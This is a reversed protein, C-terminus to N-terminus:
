KIAFTGNLQLDRSSAAASVKYTGPAVKWSHSAVEWYSLSRANLPIKVQVSQGPDLEVRRFGKLQRPPQPVKPLSPLGVYLQAVEAGARQGTNTVTFEVTVDQNDTPETIKLDKYAFTTYSLGYGFPFLPEIGRADYWRYGVLLGESYHAVDNVGPYQETSQLPLDQDRKPFTIPLKGSPNVKG